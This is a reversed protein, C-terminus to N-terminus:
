LTLPVVLNLQPSYALIPFLDGLIDLITRTDVVLSPLHADMELTDLLWRLSVGRAVLALDDILVSINVILCELAEM